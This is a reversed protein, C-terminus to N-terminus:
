PIDKIPMWREIEAEKIESKSTGGLMHAATENVQKIIQDCGCMVIHDQFFLFSQSSLSNYLTLFHLYPPPWALPRTVASRTREDMESKSSCALMHAGSQNVHQIILCRGFILVPDHFAVRSTHVICHM